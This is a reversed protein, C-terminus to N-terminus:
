CKISASEFSYNPLYDVRIEMRQFNVKSYTRVESMFSWKIHVGEYKGLETEAITDRMDTNWFIRFEQM